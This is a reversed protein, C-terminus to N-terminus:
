EEQRDESQKYKKGYKENFCYNCLEGISATDRGCDCLERM